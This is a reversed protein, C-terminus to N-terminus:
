SNIRRYSVLWYDDDYGVRSVRVTAQTYTLNDIYDREQRDDDSLQLYREGLFDDLQLTKDRAVTIHAAVLRNHEDFDYSRFSNVSSDLRYTLVNEELRDPLGFRAVVEERLMGWRLEEMPEEYLSSRGTVTVAVSANNATIRTKGIRCGSIRGNRVTAVFENDSRWVTRDPDGTLIYVTQTDGTRMELAYRDLTVSDHDSRERCGTLAAAALVALTWVVRKM